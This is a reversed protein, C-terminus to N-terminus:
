KVKIGDVAPLYRKLPSDDKVFGKLIMKGFLRSLFLQKVTRKGLTVEDWM